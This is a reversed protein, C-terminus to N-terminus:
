AQQRQPVDQEAGVVHWAVTQGLLEARCSRDGGAEEALHQKREPPASGRGQRRSAGQGRGGGARGLASSAIAHPKGVDGVRRRARQPARARAKGVGHRRRQAEADGAQRAGALGHEDGRQHAVQDGAAAQREEGGHRLAADRAGIELRLGVVAQRAKGVLLVQALEGLVRRVPGLARAADALQADGDFERRSRRQPAGEGDPRSCTSM